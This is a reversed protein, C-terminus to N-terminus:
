ALLPIRHGTTCWVVIYEEEDWRARITGTLNVVEHRKNHMVDRVWEPLDNWNFFSFIPEM